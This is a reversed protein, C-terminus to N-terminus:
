LSPSPIRTVSTGVPYNFTWFQQRGTAEIPDDLAEIEDLFWLVRGITFDGFPDIPSRRQENDRDNVAFLGSQYHEIHQVDWANRLVATAVVKGYPVDAVGCVATLMNWRSTIERPANRFYRDTIPRKAAHIAIRKGILDRHPFWHRTEIRKVGLAILSAWPQHLTIAPMKIYALETTTMM